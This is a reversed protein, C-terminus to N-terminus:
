AGTNRQAPDTVAVRVALVPAVLLDAALGAQGLYHSEVLIIDNSFRGECHLWHPLSQHQPIM